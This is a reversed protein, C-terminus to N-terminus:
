SYVVSDFPPGMNLGSSAGPLGPRLSLAAAPHFIAPIPMTNITNDIIIDM